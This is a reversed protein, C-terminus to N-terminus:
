SPQRAASKRRFPWSLLRLLLSFVGLGTLFGTGAFIVGEFTVPLAPRFEKWARQAIDTDTLHPALRARTFPGANQLAALDTTLTRHREITTAMTKAREAGMAGGSALDVLAAERSLGVGAADADFAEVVRSLEDVAGGLRQLYQQSFEPFQSLGAAGSLGGVFALARLIM